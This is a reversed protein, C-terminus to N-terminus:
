NFFNNFEKDLEAKKKIGPSLKKTEGNKNLLVLVPISRIGYEYFTAQDSPSDAKIYLLDIKDKFSPMVEQTLIRDQEQCPAGSPLLFFLVQHKSLTLNNITETKENCGSLFFSSIILILTVSLITLSKKAM